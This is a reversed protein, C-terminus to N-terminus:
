GHTPVVVLIFFTPADYLYMNLETPLHREGFGAHYEQWYEIADPLSTYFVTQGGKLDENYLYLITGINLM